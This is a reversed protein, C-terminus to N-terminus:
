IVLGEAQLVSMCSLYMPCKRRQRRKQKPVNRHLFTLLKGCSFTSRFPKELFLKTFDLLIPSWLMSPKLIQLKTNQHNLRLIYFSVGPDPLLTLIRILKREMQQENLGTQPIVSTIFGKKFLSKLVPTALHTTGKLTTM